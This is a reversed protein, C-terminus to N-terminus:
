MARGPSVVAEPLLRKCWRERAYVIWVKSIANIVGAYGYGFGDFRDRFGSDIKRALEESELKIRERSSNPQRRFPAILTQM